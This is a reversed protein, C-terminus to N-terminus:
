MSTVPLVITHHCMTIHIHATASMPTISANGIFRRKM